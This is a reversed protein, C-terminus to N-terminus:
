KLSKRDFGINALQPHQLIKCAGKLLTSNISTTYAIYLLVGSHIHPADDDFDSFIVLGDVV